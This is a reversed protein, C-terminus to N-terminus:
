FLSTPPTTARVICRASCNSAEADLTISQVSGQNSPLALTYLLWTYYLAIRESPSNPMTFSLIVFSLFPCFLSFSLTSSPDLVFDCKQSRRM